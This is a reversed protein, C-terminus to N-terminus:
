RARPGKPTMRDLARTCTERGSGAPQAERVQFLTVLLVPCKLEQQKSDNSQRDKYDGKGNSPENPIAKTTTPLAGHTIPYGAARSRPQAPRIRSSRFSCHQLQRVILPPRNPEGNPVMEASNGDLASHARLFDRRLGHRELKCSHDILDM